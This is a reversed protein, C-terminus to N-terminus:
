LMYGDRMGRAGVANNIQSVVIKQSLNQNKGARFCYLQRVIDSRSFRTLVQVLFM